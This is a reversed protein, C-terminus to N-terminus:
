EAYADPAVIVDIEHSEDYVMRHHAKVGEEYVKGDTAVIHQSLILRFSEHRAHQANKFYGKSTCKQDKTYKVDGQIRRAGLCPVNCIADHAFGDSFALSHSLVVETISRAFTPSKRLRIECIESPKRISELVRGHVLPFCCAALWFASWSPLFPRADCAISVLDTAVVNGYESCDFRYSSTCTSDGIFHSKQM